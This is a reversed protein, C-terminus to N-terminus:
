KNYKELFKIWKDIKFSDSIHQGSDLIYVIRMNECDWSVQTLIWADPCFEAFFTEENDFAIDGWHDLTKLIEKNDM